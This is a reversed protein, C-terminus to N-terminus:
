ASMVTLTLGAPNILLLVAPTVPGGGVGAGAAPLMVPPQASPLSTSIYL